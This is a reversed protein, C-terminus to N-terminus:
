AGPLLLRRVDAILIEPAHMVDAWTFRLVRYGLKQLERDRWRDVRFQDGRAHDRGDLEIALLHDRLLLDVRISGGGPLAVRGNVEPRPIGAPVLVRYALRELRSLFLADPADRYLDLAQRLVGTGRRGRARGLAADVARLDILRERDSRDLHRDLERPSLVAALDVTTRAWDTWPLGLPDVRVEDAALRRTRRIEIGRVDLVAGVVVIEPRPPEDGVGLAAAASRHGLARVHQVPGHGRTALIAAWARGYATVDARGVVYVGRFLGM